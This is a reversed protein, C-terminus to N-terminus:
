RGVRLPDSSVGEGAGREARQDEQEGHGAGVGVADAGRGRDGGAGGQEGAGADGRGVGELEAVALDGHSEGGSGRREYWEDMRRLVDVAPALEEDGVPLKGYLVMLSAVDELSLVFETEAASLPVLQVGTIVRLVAAQTVEKRSKADRITPWVSEWERAIRRWRQQTAQSDSVQTIRANPKGQHSDAGLLVGRQCEVMRLAKEFELADGAFSAVYSAVARLSAEYEDLQEWSDAALIVPM